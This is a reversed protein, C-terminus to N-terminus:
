APLCARGGTATYRSHFRSFHNGLGQWDPSAVGDADFASFASLLLRQRAEGGRTPTIVYMGM